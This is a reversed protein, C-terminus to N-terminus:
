EPTSPGSGETPFCEEESIHDGTSRQQPSFCPLMNEAETQFLAILPLLIKARVEEEIKSPADIIMNHALMAPLSTTGHIHRFPTDKGRVLKIDWMFRLDDPNADEVAKHFDTTPKLIDLAVQLQQLAISENTKTVTTKKKPSSKRPGPTPSKAM